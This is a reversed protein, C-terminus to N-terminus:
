EKVTYKKIIGNYITELAPDNVGTIKTDIIVDKRFKSFWQHLRGSADKSDSSVHCLKVIKKMEDLTFFNRANNIVLIFHRNNEGEVIEMSFKDYQPPEQKTSSGAKQENVKDVHINYQLIQAQRILFLLGEENLDNLIATLQKIMDDKPSAKKAKVPNKKGASVKDAPAKQKKSRTGTQVTKKSAM